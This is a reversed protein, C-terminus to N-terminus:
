FELFAIKPAKLHGLERVLFSIWPVGASIRSSCGNLFTTIIKYSVKTPRKTTRTVQFYYFLEKLCLSKHKRRRTRPHNSPTLSITGKLVIRIEVKHVLQFVRKYSRM